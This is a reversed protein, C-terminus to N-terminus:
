AVLLEDVEDDTLTKLKAERLALDVYERRETLKRLTANEEADYDRATSLILQDRRTTTAAPPTTRGPAIFPNTAGMIQEFRQPNERALSLAAQYQGDDRRNIKNAVIQKEVLEKAVRGADADKMAALEAQAPSDGTRAAGVLSLSLLVESKSATVALGLRQRLSAAIETDEAKAPEEKKKGKIEAIAATLIANTDSANELSVGKETLAARLEGILRQAENPNEPMANTETGLRNSAAVADMGGIAPKNTLAASHLAVARRDSSRVALVPSIFRYEGSKIMEVARPNWQVLAFLGRGPDRWVQKIWGAAPALGTPSAFEGGLTQHEFDVPIPNGHQCLAEIILREAEEDIVFNGKPSEVNGDPTLQVTRHTGREDGVFRCEILSTPRVLSLALKTDIM